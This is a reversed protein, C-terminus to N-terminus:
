KARYHYQGAPTMGLTRYLANAPANAATVALALQRAGQPAAWQGAARMLNRALGQRRLDPAIHLAHIVAWGGHLAVFLTGAPRDGLRGLIATKPGPARDMVARRAPGIAGAAWIEGMIALPPWVPFTSLRAPAETTMIEVPCAYLTVPDVIHYGRAALAADLRDEGERLCFLAQQGLARHQAEALPIDAEAGEAGEAVALASSVRKGGDQGERVTWAGARHSAAAPWTADLADFLGTM